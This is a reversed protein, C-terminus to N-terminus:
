LLSIARICDTTLLMILKWTNWAPKDYRCEGNECVEVLKKLDSSMLTFCEVKNCLLIYKPARLIRQHMQEVTSDVDKQNMCAVVNAVYFGIQADRQRVHKHLSSRHPALEIWTRLIRAVVRDQLTSYRIAVLACDCGFALLTSNGVGGTPVAADSPPARHAVAPLGSSTSCRVQRVLM